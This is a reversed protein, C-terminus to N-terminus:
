NNGCILHRIVSLASLLIMLMSLLVVSLMLFKMLIYYSLHLVLFQAKLLELMLLINKHLSTMWFWEFDNIVPFLCFLALYRVQFEMLSRKHLHCVHWVKRFAKSIELPVARTAGSRNFARAIRDSVVPLLDATSRASRFGYQFDPFFAM